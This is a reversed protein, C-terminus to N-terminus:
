CSAHMLSDIFAGHNSIVTGCHMGDYDPEWSDGLYKKYCVGDPRERVICFAGTTGWIITRSTINAFVLNMKRRWGKCEEDKKLGCAVLTMCGAMAFIVLFVIVLKLIVFHCIPYLYYRRM